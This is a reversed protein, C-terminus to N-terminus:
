DSRTGRKSLTRGGNAVKKSNCKLTYGLDKLLKSVTKTSVSVGVKALECCIKDLTKRTWLLGTVPDGATEYRM